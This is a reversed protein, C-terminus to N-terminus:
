IPTPTPTRLHAGLRQLATWASPQTGDGLPYHLGPAAPSGVPRPPTEIPPRSAIALGITRVDRPGLTFSAPVPPPEWHAPVTLDRRAARLTVLMTTLGHETVLTAALSELADLPVHQPYEYGLTLRIDEAVGATTRSVRQTAIATRDSAGVVVLQTPAPARDRALDTLQQPSWPLNVPEATGWGIPPAGTLHRWAAELARGLVLRQDPTHVTRFALTLQRQETPAAGATFADAPTDGTPMFTGNQWALPVGSLGDYYGGRPDHVVWRNPAPGLATRLPFTLRAHPQTVVHVARDTRAAARLVGSIWATLPVLWRDTLVVATSDTVVDLPPFASEAADDASGAEPASMTPEDTRPTVAVVGVANTTASPWTSGGLLMTLRGCVSRALTHAEPDASSARTDIWWFPGGPAKVHPGLLRQVEGPVHVLMPAEVSVLPRGPATGLHTVAGNQDSTVVLDPGGAHLAALLVERDPARPTLAIVDKTM